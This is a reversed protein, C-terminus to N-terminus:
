QLEMVATSYTSPTTFSVIGPAGFEPQLKASVAKRNPIGNNSFIEKADVLIAVLDGKDIVGDTVTGQLVVIKYADTDVDVWAATSAYKGTVIVNDVATTDISTDILAQTASSWADEPYYITISNDSVATLIGDVASIEAHLEDSGTDDLTVIQGVVPVGNDFDGAEFAGALAITVTNATVTVTAGTLDDAGTTTDAYVVGADFINGDASESLEGGYSLVQNKGDYTLFLKAESLDIAASGANPTVYIVMQELYSSSAKGTVGEVQIGSAVQETSEKGTTSSKQQLFGSTNILVSAAVAAVLVMAIFVILTGIGSAGKKSKMFKTIKM